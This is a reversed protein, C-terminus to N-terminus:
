VLDPAPHHHGRGTWQVYTLDFTGAGVELGREAYGPHPDFQWDVVRPKAPNGTVAFEVSFPRCGFGSLVGAGTQELAAIASPTAYDCLEGGTGAITVHAWPLPATEDYFWADSLLAASEVVPAGDFDLLPFSGPPRATWTIALSGPVVQEDSPMGFDATVHGVVLGSGDVLDFDGDFRDFAPPPIPAPPRFTEIRVMDAHGTSGESPQSLGVAVVSGALAVTLVM